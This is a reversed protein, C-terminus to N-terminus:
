KKKETACKKIKEQTKSQLQNQQTTQTAQRFTRQGEDIGDPTQSVRMGILSERGGGNTKDRKPIFWGEFGQLNSRKRMSKQKTVIHILNVSETKNKLTETESQYKPNTSPWPNLYKNSYKVM